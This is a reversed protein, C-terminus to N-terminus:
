SELDIDRYQPKIIPREVYKDIYEFFGQKEIEYKEKQKAMDLELKNVTTQLTHNEAAKDITEKHLRASWEQDKEKLQKEFDRRTHMVGVRRYFEMTNQFFKFKKIYAWFDNIGISLVYADESDTVLIIQLTKDKIYFELVAQSPKTYKLRERYLSPLKERKFECILM